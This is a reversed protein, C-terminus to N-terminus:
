SAIAKPLRCVWDFVEHVSKEEVDIAALAVMLLRAKEIDSMCCLYQWVHSTDSDQTQRALSTVIYARAEFDEDSWTHVPAYQQSLPCTQKSGARQSHTVYMGFDVQITRGCKPCPQQTRNITM